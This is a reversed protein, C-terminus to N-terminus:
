MDADEEDSEADIPLYLVDQLALEAEQSYEKFKVDHILKQCEIKVKRVSFLSICILIIDLGLYVAIFHILNADEILLDQYVYLLIYYIFITIFANITGVPHTPIKETINHSYSSYVTLGQILKIYHVCCILTNQCEGVGCGFWFMCVLAYIATVFFFFKGLKM